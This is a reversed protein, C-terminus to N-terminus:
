LSDRLASIWVLSKRKAESRLYQMGVYLDEVSKVTMREIEIDKISPKPKKLIEYYRPETLEYDNKSAFGFEELFTDLQIEKEQLKNWALISKTYWDKPSIRSHLKNILEIKQSNNLKSTLVSFVFEGIYDVAILNPWVIELIQAEIEKKEKPVESPISIVYNRAKNFTNQYNTLLKSQSLTAQITGWLCKPSFVKSIDTSLKYEGNVDVYHLVTKSYMIKEEVKLDVQLGNKESWVLLPSSDKAIPWDLMELAKGFSGIGTFWIDLYKRTIESPNRVIEALGKSQYM